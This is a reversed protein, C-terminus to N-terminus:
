RCHEVAGGADHGKHVHALNMATNMMKPANGPVCRCIEEDAEGAGQHAGVAPPGMLNGTMDEARHPMTDPEETPLVTVVPETVMGMIFACRSCAPTRRRRRAAGGGAALYHRRNYVGGGEEHGFIHAHGVALHGRPGDQGGDQIEGANEDGHMESALLQAKSPM